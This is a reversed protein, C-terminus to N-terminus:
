EKIKTLGAMVGKVLEDKSKYEVKTTKSPTATGPKKGVYITSGDQIGHDALSKEDDLKKGGSILMQSEVPCDERQASIIEKLQQVTTASGDKLEVPTKGKTGVVLITVKFVM